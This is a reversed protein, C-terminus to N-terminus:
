AVYSCPFRLGQKRRTCRKEYCGFLWSSYIKSSMMHFCRFLWLWSSYQFRQQTLKSYIETLHDYLNMGWLETEEFLDYFVRVVRSKLEEAVRSAHDRQEGAFSLCVDYDFKPVDQSPDREDLQDAAAARLLSSRWRRGRPWRQVQWAM